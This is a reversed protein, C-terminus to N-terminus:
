FYIITLINTKFKLLWAVNSTLPCKRLNESDCIRKKLKKWFCLFSIFFQLSVCVVVIFIVKHCPQCRLSLNRMDQACNKKNKENALATLIKTIHVMNNQKKSWLHFPSAIFKARNTGDQKDLRLLTLINRWKWLIFHSAQWCLLQLLPQWWRSPCVLSHGLPSLTKM